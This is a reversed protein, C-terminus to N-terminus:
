RERTPAVRGHVMIADRVEADAIDLGCWACLWVLSAIDRRCSLALIWVVVNNM